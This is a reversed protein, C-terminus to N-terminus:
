KKKKGIDDVAQKIDVDCQSVFNLVEKRIAKREFWKKSTSPKNHMHITLLTSTGSITATIKNDDFSLGSIKKQKELEKLTSIIITDTLPVDAKHKVDQLRLVDILQKYNPEELEIQVPTITLEKKSNQRELKQESKRRELEKVPNPHDVKARSARRKLKPANPRESQQEAPPCELVRKSNRRTLEHTSNRRSLGKQDSAPIEEGSPRPLDMVTKRRVLSKRRQIKTPHEPDKLTSEDPNTVFPSLDTSRKELEPLKKRPKKPLKLTKDSKPKEEAKIKPSKIEPLDMPQDESVTPSGENVLLSHPPSSLDETPTTLDANEEMEGPESNLYATLREQKIPMKYETCSIFRKIYEYKKRVTFSPNPSYSSMLSTNRIRDEFVAVEKRTEDEMAAEIKAIRNELSNNQKKEPGEKNAAKAKRIGYEFELAAIRNEISNNQTSEPGEENLPLLNNSPKEAKKNQESHQNKKSKKGKSKGRGKSNNQKKKVTNSATEEVTPTISQVPLPIEKADKQPVEEKSQSKQMEALQKQEYLWYRKGFEDISNKTHPQDLGKKANQYGKSKKVQQLTLKAQQHDRHVAFHLAKVATAIEDVPLHSKPSLKQAIDKYIRYKENAPGLDYEKLRAGVSKPDTKPNKYGGTTRWKELLERAKPDYLALRCLNGFADEPNSAMLSIAKLLEQENYHKLAQALCRLLEPKEGKSKLSTQVWDFAGTSHTCVDNFLNQMVQLSLLPALCTYFLRYETKAHFKGDIIELLRKFSKDGKVAAGSIFYEMAEHLYLEKDQELVYPKKTRGADWYRESLLEVNIPPIIKEPGQRNLLCANLFSFKINDFQKDTMGQFMNLNVNLSKDFHTMAEPFDKFIKRLLSTLGHTISEPDRAYNCLAIFGKYHNEQYQKYINEERDNKFSPAQLLHSSKLGLDLQEDRPPDMAFCTTTTALAATLSVYKFFNFSMFILM